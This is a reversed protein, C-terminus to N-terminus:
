SVIEIRGKATIRQGKTLRELDGCTVSTVGKATYVIGDDGNIDLYTSGVNTLTGTM